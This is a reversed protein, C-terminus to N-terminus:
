KVPIRNFVRNVTTKEGAIRSDQWTLVLRLTDDAAHHTYLYTLGFNKDHFPVTIKFADGVWELRAPRSEDSMPLTIPSDVNWRLDMTSDRIGTTVLHLGGAASASLTVIPRAQEALQRLVWTVGMRVLFPSIKDSLKGCLQWAGLLPALLAADPAAVDM